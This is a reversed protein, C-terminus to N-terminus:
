IWISFVCIFTFFIQIVESTLCVHVMFYLNPLPHFYRAVQLIECYKPFKFYHNREAISHLSNVYSYQLRNSIDRGTGNYINVSAVSLRETEM